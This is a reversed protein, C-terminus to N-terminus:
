NKFVRNSMNYHLFEGGQRESGNSQNMKTNFSKEVWFNVTVKVADEYSRVQNEM